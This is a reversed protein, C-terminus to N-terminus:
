DIYSKFELASTRSPLQRATGSTLQLPPQKLEEITEELKVVRADIWYGCPYPETPASEFTESHEYFRRRYEIGLRKELEFAATQHWEKVEISPLPEKEGLKKCREALEKGRNVSRYLRRLDDERKVWIKSAEGTIRENYTRMFNIAVCSFVLFESLLIIAATSKSFGLTIQAAVVLAVNSLIFMLFKTASVLNKYWVRRKSEEDLITQCFALNAAILRWLRKMRRLM